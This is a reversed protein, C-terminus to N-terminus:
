RAENFTRGGKSCHVHEFMNNTDRVLTKYKITFFPRNDPAPAGAEQMEQGPNNCHLSVCPHRQSAWMQGFPGQWKTFFVMGHARSCKIRICIYAISINHM